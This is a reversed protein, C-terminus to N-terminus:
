GGVEDRIIERPLLGRIRAPLAGVRTRAEPTGRVDRVEGVYSQEGPTLRRRLHFASGSWDRWEGLPPDGLGALAAEARAECNARGYFTM